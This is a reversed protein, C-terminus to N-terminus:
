QNILLHSQMMQQIHKILRKKFADDTFPEYDHPKEMLQNCMNKSMMIQTISGVISAVTLVPDVKKFVKKKVGNEIIKAFNKTNRSLTETLTQNLSERNIGMLEKYLLKHFNPNSVIRNVYDEILFNVKAIESISTNANLEEIRDKMYGAKEEIIAEMLKEKSGFYYNVMAVNVDAVKALDRISTAEFGKDAFLQMAHSMIHQKKDVAM